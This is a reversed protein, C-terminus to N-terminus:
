YTGESDYDPVFRSHDTHEIRQHQLGIPRLPNGFATGTEHKHERMQKELAEIRLMANQLGSQLNVIDQWSPMHIFGGGVPGGFGDSM